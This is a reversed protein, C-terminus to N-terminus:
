NKIETNINQSLPQQTLMSVIAWTFVVTVIIILTTMLILMLPSLTINSSPHTPHQHQSSSSMKSTLINKMETWTLVRKGLRESVKQHMESVINLFSSESSKLTERINMSDIMEGFHSRCKSCPLSKQVHLLIQFIDEIEEDSLPGVYSLSVCYLYIWTSFGWVKPHINKRPMNDFPPTSYWNTTTHTHQSYPFSRKNISSIFHIMKFNTFLYCPINLKNSSAYM